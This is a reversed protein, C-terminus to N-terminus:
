AKKLVLRGEDELRKATELIKEQASQVKALSQPGQQDLLEKLETGARQSLTSVLADKMEDSANRLALAWTEVGVERYLLQWGETELGKLDEFVFMRKRLESARAPDIRAIEALLRDRTAPDLNGLLESAIQKGDIRVGKDKDKSMGRLNACPGFRLGPSIM